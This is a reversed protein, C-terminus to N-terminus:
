IETAFAPFGGTSVCAHVCVSLDIRICLIALLLSSSVEDYKEQGYALLADCVPVGVQFLSFHVVIAENASKCMHALSSVMKMVDCDSSVASDAYKEM